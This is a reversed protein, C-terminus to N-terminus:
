SKHSNSGVYINNSKTEGCRLESAASFIRLSKKIEGVDEGPVTASCFQLDDAHLSATALRM